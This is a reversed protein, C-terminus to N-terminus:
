QHGNEGWVSGFHARTATAQGPTLYWPQWHEGPSRPFERRLWARLVKASMGIERALTEPRIDETNTDVGTDGLEASNTPPKIKGVSAERRNSVPTSSPLQPGEAAAAFARAEAAMRRRAERIRASWPSVVDKLNLPPQWARLVAGEVTSLEWLGDDFWVALTLRTRM